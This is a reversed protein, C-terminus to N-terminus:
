KIFIYNDSVAWSTSCGYIQSQYYYGLWVIFYFDLGEPPTRNYGDVAPRAYTPFIAFKKVMRTDGDKYNKRYIRWKM